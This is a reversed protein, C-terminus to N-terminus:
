SRDRHFDPWVRRILRGALVRAQCYAFWVPRRIPSTMWKVGRRRQRPTDLPIERGDRNVSVVLGLADQRRIPKDKSHCNDGWTQLSGEPLLKWVRHIVLEGDQRRFLVIDGELPERRLPVITAPDKGYRILPMMSSGYIPITLPIDMGREVLSCWQGPTLAPQFTRDM